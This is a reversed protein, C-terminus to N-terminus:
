VALATDSGIMNEYPIDAVGEMVTRVIFRDSGSVIYCKFDNEQLYEIVEIMPHYYGEAYTMGEFGDAEHVLFRTIFDAYETLTM